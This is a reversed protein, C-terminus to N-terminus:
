PTVTVVGSANQGLTDRYPYTGPTSFTHFYTGSEMTASAFRSFTVNAPFPAEDWKWEVTQGARITVHSPEVSDYDLVVVAAPATAPSAGTGSSVPLNAPSCAALAVGGLAAVCIPLLARPAMPAMM